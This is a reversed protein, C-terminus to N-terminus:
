QAELEAIRKEYLEVAGKRDDREAMAYVAEVSDISALAAPLEDLTPLKDGGDEAAPVAAATQGWDGSLVKPDVALISDATVKEKAMAAALEKEQGAVYTRSGISVAGNIKRENAM